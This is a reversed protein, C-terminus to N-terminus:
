DGEYGDKKAEILLRNRFEAESEGEYPNHADCIYLEKFGEIIQSICPTLKRNVVDHFYVGVAKGDLRHGTPAGPTIERIIDGIVVKGRGFKVDREDRERM